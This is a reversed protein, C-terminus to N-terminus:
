KQLSPGSATGNAANDASFVVGYSLSMKTGGGAQPLPNNEVWLTHEGQDLGTEFYLLTTGNDLPDFATNPTFPPRTHGDITVSFPASGAYLTGYLAVGAGMAGLQSTTTHSHTDIQWQNSEPRWVCDSSNHYVTLSQNLGNEFVLYGIMLLPQSPDTSTAGIRINHPGLGVTSLYSAGFLLYDLQEAGGTYGPYDTSHGDLTVRYSGLSRIYSGYIRTGWSRSFSLRANGRWSFSVSAAGNTANTYHYGSTTYQLLDPDDEVSAEYWASRPIYNLLPSVHSVTTNAPM